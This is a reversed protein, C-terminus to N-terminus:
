NSLESFMCNCYCWLVTTFQEEEDFVTCFEVCHLIQCETAPFTQSLLCSQLKGASFSNVTSTINLFLVTVRSQSPRFIVCNHLHANIQHAASPEINKYVPKSFTLALEM